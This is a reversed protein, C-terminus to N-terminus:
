VIEVKGKEVWKAVRKQLATNKERLNYRQGALYVSMTEECQFEELCLFQKVVRGKTITQKAM